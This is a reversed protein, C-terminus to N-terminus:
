KSLFVQDAIATKVAEFATSLGKPDNFVFFDKVPDTACKQLRKRTDSDDLAFAMTVITIGDAKANKCLQELNAEGDTDKRSGDPGFAPETQDGDTLVIMFKKTEKDSYPAGSTYPADPSLMHYGFEVGLAIHTNSYPRMVELKSNLAAFNKSLDVTALKNTVYPKCTGGAGDPAIVQNWKTAPNATPASTGTNYPYQRDQTCGTWSSGTGGLVMSSPLTTYVHHSFPVLGFKVKDADTMSLDTVLSKAADKMAVYKIVGDISWGMSGSYDLVMVIEAKKDGFIGVEAHNVGKMVDIGAIQMLATPVKVDVESVFKDKVVTFKPDANMGKAPGNAMNLKFSTEAIEVRKADTVKKASAGALTAADLAAQVHTQAANFRVFDIAAGAALMLPVATLGAMIAVTGKQDTAFRQMLRKLTLTRTMLTEQKM